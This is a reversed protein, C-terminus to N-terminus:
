IVQVLIHIKSAYAKNNLKKKCYNSQCQLCTGNAKSGVELRAEIKEVVVLPDCSGTDSVQVMNRLSDGDQIPDQSAPCM